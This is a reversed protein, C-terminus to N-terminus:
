TADKEMMKEEQEQRSKRRNIKLSDTWRRTYKVEEEEEEEEKDEEKDEGKEEQEQGEQEQQEQEGSNLSKQDASRLRSLVDWSEDLEVQFYLISECFILILPSFIWRNWIKKLIQQQLRQM